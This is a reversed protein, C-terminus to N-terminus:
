SEPVAVIQERTPEAAKRIRDFQDYASVIKQVLAHRVVDRQDFYFFEIGEVGALV